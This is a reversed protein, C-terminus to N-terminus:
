CEQFTSITANSGWNLGSTGFVAPILNQTTKILIHTRLNTVTKGSQSIQNVIYIDDYHLDNLLYIQDPFASNYHLNKQFSWVQLPGFHRLRVQQRVNQLDSVKVVV